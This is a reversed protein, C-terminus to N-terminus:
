EKTKEDLGISAEIKRLVAEYGFISFGFIVAWWFLMQETVFFNGVKLFFATLFSLVLPIYVRYGKLWNKKDLRKIMESFIVVLAVATVIFFPLLTMVNEM